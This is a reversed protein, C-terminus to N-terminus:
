GGYHEAHGSELLLDSLTTGNPFIVNGITRGYKGRDYETELIVCSGHIDFLSKVYETAAIGRAKEELDKTRVEPTNIGKIRVRERIHIDFGLDISFDITDGDIIRIVTAEYTYMHPITPSHTTFHPILFPNFFTHQANYLANVLVTDAGM